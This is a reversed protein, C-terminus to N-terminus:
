AKTMCLRKKGLRRTAQIGEVSICSHGYRPFWSCEARVRRDRIVSIERVRVSAAVVAAAEVASWQRWCASREGAVICVRCPVSWICVERSPHRLTHQAVTRFLECAFASKTLCPIRAM